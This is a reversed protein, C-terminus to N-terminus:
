AHATHPVMHADAPWRFPSLVHMNNRLLAFRGPGDVKMKDPIFGFRVEGHTEGALYPHLDHFPPVQKGVVDILTMVEGETRFFVVVELDPVHYGHERLRLLWHFMLLKPNFVGLADSVPDRACALGFVLDIDRDDEPDLKRLGPRLAPKEVAMTWSTEPAPEFGCRRYFPVADDDAFLFFGAHTPSAWELAARTLGRNLGQGRFEALTGVGSLQGVKCPRGGLVMDMSYLCVSSVVRDGDFLSFPMYADDWFGREEWLGLDLGHIARLFKKFEAKAGRDDWYRSRFSLNGPAEV